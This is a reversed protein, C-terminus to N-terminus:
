FGRRCANASIVFRTTRVTPLLRQTGGFAFHAVTSQWVYKKRALRHTAMVIARKWRYAEAIFKGPVRAKEASSRRYVLQPILQGFTAVPVFILASEHM